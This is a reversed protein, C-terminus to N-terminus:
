RGMKTEEIKKKILLQRLKVTM